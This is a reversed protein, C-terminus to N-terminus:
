YPQHRKALVTGTAGQSITHNSSSADTFDGTSQQCTLLVTGTIATSKSTPLPITDVFPTAANAAADGNATLSVSSASDDNPAGTAENATLLKTHGSPISTNVNTTDLYTGGTLTLRGAPPSFNGSYVGTGVVYRVDSIKGDMVQSTSYFGGIMIHTSTYNKPDAVSITEIGDIYLRTTQGIRVMAGHHWSGTAPIVGQNSTNTYTDNAYIQYGSISPKIAMGIGASNSGSWANNGIHMIGKHGTADFNFWCELTFDSTGAATVVGTVYDGTGDFTISGGGYSAASTVTHATAGKVIRFDSMYGLFKKDNTDDAGYGGIKCTNSTHNATDSISTKEKGDLFFKTTGSSRQLAYHHWENTPFVADTTGPTYTMQVSQDTQAKILGNKFFIRCGNNGIDFLRENHTIGTNVPFTNKFWGDVCYDGTGLTFDSNATPILTGINANNAGLYTGFFASGGSGQAFPTAYDHKADGYKTLVKATVQSNVDLLKEYGAGTTVGLQYMTANYQSNDTVLGSSTQNTLLYTHASPISTNVNTNSPYTGGTRTLPGSPPTFAGTYVCTGVVVRSDSLTGTMDQSDVSNTFLRIDQSSGVGLPNTGSASATATGASVGDIYLVFSGNNCTAAIHHWQNVSTSGMNSYNFGMNYPQIAAGVRAMYWASGVAGGHFINRYSGGSTFYAWTELTWTTGWAPIHTSTVNLESSGQSALTTGGNTVKSPEAGKMTLLKTNTVATLGSTPKTISAAIPVASSASVSGGHSMTHPTDSTDTVSSANNGLLMITQSASPNSINVNSPYTGGTKTLPGSPPTFAGTYVAKGKVIRLDCVGGQWNYGGGGYGGLTFTNTAHNSSIGTDTGKLVGDLYLKLTTGSRTFALHYWKSTDLSGLDDVMDYDITDGAGHNLTAFISGSTFTFRLGNSGLDLLYNNGSLSSSGYKFWLEITWDGTGMTFDTSTSTTVAGGSLLISGSHPAATVSYASSGNVVRVNSIYGTATRDTGYKDMGLYGVWSSLDVTGSYSASGVESGDVFLHITNSVRQLAIHNWANPKLGDQAVIEFKDTGGVIYIAELDNDTNSASQTSSGQFIRLVNNSDDPGWEIWSGRKDAAAGDPWVWAEITFNNSGFNFDSSAPFSYYDTDANYPGVKYSGPVDFQLTFESASSTAVAVGDSASFTLSFTGAHADTTSPTVKFFKNTTLTNAALASYTGGSTASSTIAATSGISGSSVVYKYQLASGVESDTATIEISVPTGDTLFQYSANGASSITPATNTIEAIKYWGNSKAIFMFNNATVLAQQGDTPNTPLLATTAYVTTSAVTGGEAAEGSAQTQIAVKGTSSDRKLIVKDAGTGVHIESAILKKENGSVDQVKLDGSDTVLKTNDIQLPDSGSRNARDRAISM